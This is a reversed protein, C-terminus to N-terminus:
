DTLLLCVLNLTYIYRPSILGFLKTMSVFISMKLPVCDTPALLHIDPMQYFASDQNLKLLFMKKPQLTTVLSIDDFSNKEKIFPKDLNLHCAFWEFIRQKLNIIKILDEM